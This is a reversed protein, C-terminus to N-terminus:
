PIGDSLRKDLWESAGDSEAGKDSLPQHAYPAGLSPGSLSLPFKTRERDALLELAAGAVTLSSCRKMRGSPKWCGPFAFRHSSGCALFGAM